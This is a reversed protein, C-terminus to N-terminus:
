MGSILVRSKAMKGVLRELHLVVGIFRGCTAGVQKVADEEEGAAVKYDM